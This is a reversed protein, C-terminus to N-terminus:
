SRAARKRVGEFVHVMYAAAVVPMFWNLVPVTMLVAIALGLSVFVFVGAKFDNQVKESNSEAM